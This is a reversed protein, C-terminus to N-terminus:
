PDEKNRSQFDDDTALDQYRRLDRSVADLGQRARETSRVIETKQKVLRDLLSVGLGEKNKVLKKLLLQANTKTRTEMKELYWRTGWEIYTDKFYKDLYNDRLMETAHMSNFPRKKFRTTLFDMQEDVQRDSTGFVETVIDHHKKLRDEQINEPVM